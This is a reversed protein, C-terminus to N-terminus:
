MKLFKDKDRITQELKIKPNPEMSGMPPPVGMMGGMPPINAGMGMMPPMVKNQAMIPNQGMMGIPGMNPINPGFPLNVGPFNIPIQNLAAPNSKKSKKHAEEANKINKAIDNAKREAQKIKKLTKNDVNINFSIKNKDQYFKHLEHRQTVYNVIM